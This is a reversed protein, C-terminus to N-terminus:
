RNGHDSHPQRNTISSYIIAICGTSPWCLVDAFIYVKQSRVRSLTVLSVRDANCLFEVLLIAHSLARVSRRYLSKLRSCPQSSRYANLVFGSSELKHLRETYYFWVIPLDASNTPSFSFRTIRKVVWAFARTGNSIYM